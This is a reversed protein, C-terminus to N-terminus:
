RSRRLRYGCALERHGTWGTDQAWRLPRRCEGAFDTDIVPFGETGISNLVARREAVALDGSIATKRNVFPQVSPLMLSPRVQIIPLLPLGGLERAGLRIGEGFPM